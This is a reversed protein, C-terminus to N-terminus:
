VGEAPPELRAPAARAADTITTGSSNATPQQHESVHLRCRRCYLEAELFFLPILITNFFDDCTKMYVVQVAGGLM